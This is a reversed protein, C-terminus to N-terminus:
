DVKIIDLRCVISPFEQGFDVWATANCGDSIETITGNGLNTRYRHKVTDGVMVTKGDNDTM